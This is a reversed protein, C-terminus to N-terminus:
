GKEHQKARWTSIMKWVRRYLAFVAVLAGFNIVGLAVFWAVSVGSNALVMM